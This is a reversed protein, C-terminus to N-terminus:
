NLKLYKYSLIIKQQLYKKEDTIPIYLIQKDTHGVVFTAHGIYLSDRM